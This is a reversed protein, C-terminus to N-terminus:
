DPLELAPPMRSGTGEADTAAIRRQALRRFPRPRPGRLGQCRRSPLYIWRESAFIFDRAANRCEPEHHAFSWTKGRSLEHLVCRLQCSSNGPTQVLQLGAAFSTTRIDILTDDSGKPVTFQLIASEAVPDTAFNPWPYPTAPREPRRSKRTANGTSPKSASQEACSSRDSRPRPRAAADEGLSGSAM